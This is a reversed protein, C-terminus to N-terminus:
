VVRHRGVAVKRKGATSWMGSRSASAKGVLSAGSHHMPSGAGGMLGGKGRGCHGAVVSIPPSSSALDSSPIVISLNLSCRIQVVGGVRMGGGSVRYGYVRDVFSRLSSPSSDTPSPAANRARRKGKVQERAERACRLFTLSVRHSELVIVFCPTVLLRSYPSSTPTYTNKTAADNSRARIENGSADLRRVHGGHPHATPCHMLSHRGDYRILVIYM